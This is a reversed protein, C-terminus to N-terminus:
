RRTKKLTCFEDCLSDLESQKTAEGARTKLSVLKAQYARADADGLSTAPAIMTIARQLDAILKVRCSQMEAVGAMVKLRFIPTTM